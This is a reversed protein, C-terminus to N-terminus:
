NKIEKSSNDYYLLIWEFGNTAIGIDVNFSRRDLWDMVQNAGSDKRWLDSGLPEAEILFEKGFKSKVRYDPV